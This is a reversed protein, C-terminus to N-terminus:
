LLSTLENAGPFNSNFKLYTIKLHIKTVSLQSMEQSIARIHIDSSKVSSWDINTWTIAQHRWTWVCGRQYCIKNKEHGFEGRSLLIVAGCGWDSVCPRSWPRPRNCICESWRGSHLFFNLYGSFNAGRLVRGRLVRGRPSSPGLLVRGWWGSFEAGDAPSSPGWCGSFEAGQSSFEAGCHPLRVHSSM